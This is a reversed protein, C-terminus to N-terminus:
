NPNNKESTKEEILEKVDIIDGDKINNNVRLLLRKRGKYKYFIEQGIKLDVGSKSKPSLNPNMVNPIILPISKFSSNKLTFSISNTETSIENTKKPTFFSTKLKLEKQTNNSLIVVDNKYVMIKVRGLPGLGFGSSFKGTVSDEIRVGIEDFSKNKLKLGFVNLGTLNYKKNNIEISSEPPIVLTETQSFSLFSFLLFQLLILPKM